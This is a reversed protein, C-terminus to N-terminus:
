NIKCRRVRFQSKGWNGKGKIIIHTGQTRQTERLITIRLHVGTKVPHLHEQIKSYLIGQSMGYNKNLTKM